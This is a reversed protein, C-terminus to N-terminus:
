ARITGDHPDPAVQSPHSMGPMVPAAPGGAAFRRAQAASIRRVLVSYTRM